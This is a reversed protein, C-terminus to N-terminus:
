QVGQIKGAKSNLYGDVQMQWEVSAERVEEAVDLFQGVADGKGEEIEM